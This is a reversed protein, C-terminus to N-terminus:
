GKPATKNKLADYDERLMSYYATDRYREWRYWHQRLTGEYTMGIKQMVKGSAPNDTFHSAYIRNLGLEEFGFIMVRRAAESVYGNGWFPIGLWYGIEARHHEKRPHLGIVGILNDSPKATIAFVFDERANIADQMKEIFEVAGDEPYPHPMTLLNAAIEPHDALQRINTADTMELPRLILRETELRPLHSNM